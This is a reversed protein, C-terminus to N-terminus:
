QRGEVVVKGAMVQHAIGCYEHCLFLYEGPQPFTTTARAVQGPLLMLNVNTNHIALGHTVDASTVYFTVKAGVPIRIEHPSFSWTRAVMYVEYSDPGVARIGPQNFPPVQLLSRPDLRREVGPLSIGHAFVSWSVTALLGALVALSLVMWIKEYPEVQIAKGGEWYLSISGM